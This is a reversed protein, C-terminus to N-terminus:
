LVRLVDEVPGADGSALLALCDRLGRGDAPWVFREVAQEPPLWEYAMHEAGLTVTAGGDVVAAFGVGLQVTHTKVIYIPQVHISYLREVALGTEERLERVAAEEPEEGSEIHGHVPEWATPCRTDRARQLVLVRWDDGDRALVFVDVTGAMVTAM